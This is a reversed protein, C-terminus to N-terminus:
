FAYKANQKEERRNTRPTRIAKAEKGQQAQKNKRVGKGPLIPLGQCDSTTTIFNFFCLNEWERPTPNQTAGPPHDLGEPPM